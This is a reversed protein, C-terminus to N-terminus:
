HPCFCELIKMPCTILFQGYGSNLKQECNRKQEPNLIFVSHGWFIYVCKSVLHITFHTYMKQAV